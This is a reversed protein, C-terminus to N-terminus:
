QSCRLNKISDRFLVEIMNPKMYKQVYGRGFTQHDIVDGAQFAGNMAYPLVRDGSVDGVMKEWHELVVPSKKAPVAAAKKSKGSRPTKTKPKEEPSRYAHRGNCVKCQVKAIAEDIMVVVHHDTVGKCKRCISQVSSGAQMTERTM